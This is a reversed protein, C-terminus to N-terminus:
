IRLNPLMSVRLLLPQNTILVQPTDPTYASLLPLPFDTIVPATQRLRLHKPHFRNESLSHTRPPEGPLRRLHQDPASRQVRHRMQAHWVAVGRSRNACERNHFVTEM